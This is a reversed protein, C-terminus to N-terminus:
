DVPLAGIRIASSRTGGAVSPPPAGGWRVVFLGLAATIAASALTGAILINTRMQADQGEDARANTRHAIFDDHKGITDFASATAAGGLVATVGAGLWFWVPSPGSHRAPQQEEPPPPQSASTDETEVLPLRGDPAVLLSTGARPDISRRELGGKTRFEIAHPTPSVWLTRGVPVAVGDVRATCAAGSTCNIRISALTPAFRAVLKEIVPATMSRARAREVLNMALIASDAREAAFLAFRLVNENPALEDARALEQVAVAYDGHNYADAGKDYARRAEGTAPDAASAAGAWVAIAIPLGIRIIPRPAVM